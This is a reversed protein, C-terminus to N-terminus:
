ADISMRSLIAFADRYVVREFHDTSDFDGLLAQGELKEKFEVLSMKQRLEDKQVLNTPRNCFYIMVHPRGSSKWRKISRLVESETGTTGKATKLGLRNWFIVVVLDAKDLEPDILSQPEGIGPPANVEYRWLEVTVSRVTGLTQNLLEVVAPMREREPQVDKPSAVFIRLRRSTKETIYANPSPADKSPSAIRNQRRPSRATMDPKASPQKHTVQRRGGGLADVTGTSLAHREDAPLLAKVESQAEPVSGREQVQQMQYEFLSRTVRERLDAITKFNVVFRDAKLADKFQQLRARAQPDQEFQALPLQFTPDAMFAMVPIGRQRAWMYELEALSQTYGPPVLGYRWGLTLLLLDAKNVLDRIRAPVDIESASWTEASIPMVRAALCAERM